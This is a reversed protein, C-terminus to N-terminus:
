RSTAHYERELARLDLKRLANTLRRKDLHIHGDSLGSARLLKKVFGDAVEKGALADLSKTLQGRFGRQREGTKWKMLDITGNPDQGTLQCVEDRLIKYIEM